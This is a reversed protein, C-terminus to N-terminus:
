VVIEGRMVTVAQGGIQVSRLARGETKGILRLMGCRGGPVGQTCLASVLGDRVPIWGHRVLAALLPGHVSGTVPDESIGAAPAFFRSHANISPTLTFPTSVCFGRLRLPRGLELLRTPDPNLGAVGQFSRLFFLADREQTLWATSDPALDAESIRFGEALLKSTLTLPELKPEPLELWFVGSGAGGNPSEVLCELVGSRTQIRLIRTEPNALADFRGSELLVHVGAITAHGCMTVEVAPTFWRFRVDAARPDEPPLIFTTESLNFENALRRMGEESLGTADHVVAAPNGQFAEAAFADVISYARNM